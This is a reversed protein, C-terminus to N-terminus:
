QLFIQDFHNPAAPWCYAFTRCNLDLAWMDNFVSEYTRGGFVFLKSGVVTMTHYPRGNPGGNVV